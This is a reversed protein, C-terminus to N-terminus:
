LEASPDQGPQLFGKLQANFTKPGLKNILKISIHKAQGLDVPLVTRINYIFLIYTNTKKQSDKPVEVM